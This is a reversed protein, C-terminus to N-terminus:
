GANFSSLIVSGSKLEKSAIGVYRVKVNKPKTAWSSWSGDGFEGGCPRIMRAAEESEAVVICSDYTDYDNNEEQSLLYLFFPKM